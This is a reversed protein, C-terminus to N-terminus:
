WSHVVNEMTAQEMHHNYKFEGESDYVYVHYHAAAKIVLLAAVCHGSSFGAGSQASEQRSSKHLNTHSMNKSHWALM